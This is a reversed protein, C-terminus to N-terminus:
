STSLKKLDDLNAQCYPCGITNLHFEIYDELGADVSGLLYSGLQDRSPCSVRERRWIAGISHEGRDIESLVEQLTARLDRSDRLAKEVQATDAPPLADNLYDRLMERTIAAM